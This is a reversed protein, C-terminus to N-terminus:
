GTPARTPVSSYSSPVLALGALTATSRSPRCRLTGMCSASMPQSTSTSQPTRRSRDVLYRSMRARLDGGRVVLAVHCGRGALFVAAQGASNAGGVVVVPDGQCAQAEVETAAYFVGAGEFDALRDVELRRYRAGTAVVVTRGRLYDGGELAVVYHGGDFALGTATVPVASSAGFRKAQLAARETLEAGSIGAPFGPYNEIRASTSAQGGIAVADVLVTSLGESAAYVAAALGAPGAGVILTDAVRTPARSPRLNLAQAVASNTPNRLALSGRLLLPTDAPAVGFERLLGEAQEDTEV